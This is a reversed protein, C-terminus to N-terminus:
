PQNKAQELRQRDEVVQPDDAGLLRTKIALAKEALRISGDRDARAWKEAAEKLLGDADELTQGPPRSIPKKAKDKRFYADARTFLRLAVDKPPDKWERLLSVKLVRESRGPFRVEAKYAGTFTLEYPSRLSQFYELMQQQYQRYEGSEKKDLFSMGVSLAIAFCVVGLIRIIWQQFVSPPSDSTGGLLSRFRFAAPSIIMLLGAIGFFVLFLPHNRYIQHIPIYSIIM